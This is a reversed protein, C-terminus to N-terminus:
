LPIENSFYGMKIYDLSLLSLLYAANGLSGAPPPPQTCWWLPSLSPPLCDRPGDSHSPTPFPEDGKVSTHDPALGFTFADYTKPFFFSFFIQIERM